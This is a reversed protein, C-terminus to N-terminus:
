NILTYIMYFHKLQVNTNPETIHGKSVIIPCKERNLKIVGRSM